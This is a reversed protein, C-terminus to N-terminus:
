DGEPCPFRVDAKSEKNRFYRKAGHRQISWATFAAALGGALAVANLWSSDIGATCLLLGNRLSLGIFGGAFLCNFLSVTELLGGTGRHLIWLRGHKAELEDFGSSRTPQSDCPHEYLHQALGPNGKAFYAKVRGMARLYEHSRLNRTLIRGRLLVGLLLLFALASMMEPGTIRISDVLVIAGLLATALTVFFEVRKEGLEETRWFSELLGQFEAILFDAAESNETREDTQDIPRNM